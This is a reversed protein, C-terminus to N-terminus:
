ANQTRGFFIALWICQPETSTFSVRHKQHAPILLTDGTLLKHKSRDQFELEAEGQILCVWEQEDQDYWFDPDSKHGASVIREIRIGPQNLLETFLEDPLHSPIDQFLNV